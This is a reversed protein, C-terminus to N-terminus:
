PLIVKFNRNKIPRTLFYNPRNSAKKKLFAIYHKLSFTKYQIVVYSNPPLGSVKSKSKGKFSVKLEKMFKAQTKSCMNDRNLQDGFTLSFHFNLYQAIFFQRPLIGRIITKILTLCM